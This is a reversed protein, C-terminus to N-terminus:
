KRRTCCAQAHSVGQEEAEERALVAGSAQKELYFEGLDRVLNEYIVNTQLGSLNELDRSSIWIKVSRQGKELPINVKEYEGQETNPSWRESSGQDGFNLCLM